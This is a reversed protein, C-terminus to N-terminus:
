NEIDAEPDVVEAQVVASVPALCFDDGYAPCKSLKETLDKVSIGLRAAEEQPNLVGYLRKGHFKKFKAALYAPAIPAKRSLTEPFDKFQCALMPTVVHKSKGQGTGILESVEQQVVVSYGKFRSVFVKEVTRTNGEKKTNAM